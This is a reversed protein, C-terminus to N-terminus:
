RVCRNLCAADTRECPRRKRHLARVFSPHQVSPRGQSKTETQILWVWMRTSINPDKHLTQAAYNSLNRGLMHTQTPTCTCIFSPQESLWSHISDNGVSDTQMHLCQLPKSSPERLKLSFLFLFLERYVIRYGEGHVFMMVRACIFCPAPWNCTISHCDQCFLM